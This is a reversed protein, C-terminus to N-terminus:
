AVAPLLRRRHLRRVREGVCALSRNAAALLLRGDRRRRRAAADRRGGPRLNNGLLDLDSASLESALIVSM